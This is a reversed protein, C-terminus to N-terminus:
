KGGSKLNAGEGIPILLPFVGSLGILSSGIVSFLWPHYEFDQMLSIVPIWSRPIYDIAFTNYVSWGIGDSTGNRQFHSDVASMESLSCMNLVCM